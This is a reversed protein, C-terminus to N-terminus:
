LHKRDLSLTSGVDTVQYLYLEDAVPNRNLEAALGFGEGGHLGLSLTDSCLVAQASVMLSPHALETSNLRHPLGEDRSFRGRM